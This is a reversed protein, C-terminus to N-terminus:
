FSLQSSAGFMGNSIQNSSVLASMKFLVVFFTTCLALLYLIVKFEPYRSPSSAVIGVM